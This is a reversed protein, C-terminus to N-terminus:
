TVTLVMVLMRLMGMRMSTGGMRQGMALTRNAMALMKVAIMIVVFAILKSDMWCGVLPARRNVALTRSTVVSMKFDSLLRDDESLRAGMALNLVSSSLTREDNALTMRFVALMKMAMTLARVAVALTMMAVARIDVAVLTMVAVAMNM